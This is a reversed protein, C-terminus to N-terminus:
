SKQTRSIYDMLSMYQAHFDHEGVGIPGKFFCALQPMLGSEGLRHSRETLRVMDLVIPAALISDCGQWTFQLSMKFDLFGQFHVFDWATKLDSLSPVYDIAVHTHLPYGLISPLVGDKTELKSAKNEANGLVQGDRDGLINYGQWSMVKLNRHHFMPALATKVLTEGTKGDNGMLPLGRSKALKVHAPLLCANSPTFNLFPCGSSLAAWAYISSARVQRKKNGAILRRFGAMTQHETRLKLPPETSAVNVVIVEDLEHTRRFAELDAQISKLVDSLTRSERRSSPGAISTIAGGCNVATGSCIDADIAELDESVAEIHETSLSGSDRVIERASEILSIDRVDHGGFVLNEVGCLDARDFPMTETILGTTGTLGRAMMRAGVILTTALGGRAGILWVGIKPAQRSARKSETKSM